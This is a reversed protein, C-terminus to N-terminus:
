RFAYTYILIHANSDYTIKEYLQSPSSSFHNKWSAYNKVSCLPNFSERRSFCTFDIVHGAFFDIDLDLYFNIAFIKFFPGHSSGDQLSSRNVAVRCLQFCKSLSYQKLNTFDKVSFIVVTKFERPPTVLYSNIKKDILETITKRLILNNWLLKLGPWQSFSYLTRWHDLLGANLGLDPWLLIEFNTISAM